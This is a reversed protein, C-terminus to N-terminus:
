GQLNTDQIITKENQDIKTNTKCRKQLDVPVYNVTTGESTSFSNANSNSYSSGGVIVGYGIGGFGSSKSANSNAGSSSSAKSIVQIDDYVSGGNAYGNQKAFQDCLGEFGELADQCSSNSYGSKGPFLRYFTLIAGNPVVAFCKAKVSYRANMAFSSEQILFLSMLIMMIKTTTKM